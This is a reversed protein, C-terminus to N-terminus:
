IAIGIPKNFLKRTAKKRNSATSTRKSQGRKANTRTNHTRRNTVLADKPKSLINKYKKM